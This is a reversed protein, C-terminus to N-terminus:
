RLVSIFKDAIALLYEDEFPKGSLMLGVPLGSSNTAQITISPAGVLSFLETNGLLQDRYRTENGIVDDILPATIKTTPSVLVDVDKMIMNYENSLEKRTNLAQIYDVAKVGSGWQLTSRVDPFYDDARTTIWKHHFEAAEAYTITRRAANGRTQLGPIEVTQVNFESTVRRVIPKLAESAEDDNFLFLGVNLESRKDRSNKLDRYRKSVITRFTKRVLEIDRSIVGVTDLTRSLPIVGSNSIIGTTPKFGIVGCLASPTRISGATDTGLAVEVAGVAVAVASGGSSGGSIRRPDVPNKAPGAISSTNTIGCAFEHTNTKGIITSGAELLANVVSANASPINDELIKSGATTRVGATDIIDKVASRIGALTGSSRGQLSHVTIFANLEKAGFDRSKSKM